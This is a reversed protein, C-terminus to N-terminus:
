GLFTYSLLGADEGHIERIKRRMKGQLVNPVAIRTQDTVRMQYQPLRFATPLEVRTSTHRMTRDDYRVVWKQGLLTFPDEAPPKFWPEVLPSRNRRIVYFPPQDLPSAVSVSTGDPHTYRHTIEGFEVCRGGFAYGARRLVAHMRDAVVKVAGAEAVSPVTVDERRVVVDRTVRRDMIAEVMPASPIWPINLLKREADYYNMGALYLSVKVDEVLSGFTRNKAKHIRHVADWEWNDAFNFPNFLEGEWEPASVALDIGPVHDHRARWAADLMAAIHICTMDGVNKRGDKIEMYQADKCGDQMLVVQPEGFENLLAGEVKPSYLTPKTRHRPEKTHVDADIVTGMLRLRPIMESPRGDWLTYTREKRYIARRMEEVLEEPGWDVAEDPWPFRLSRGESRYLRQKKQGAILRGALRNPSALLYDAKAFRGPLYVHRKGYYQDRMCYGYGIPVERQALGKVM